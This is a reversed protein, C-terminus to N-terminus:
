EFCKGCSRLDLIGLMELSLPFVSAAVSWRGRLARFRGGVGQLFCGLTQAVVDLGDNVGAQGCGDSGKAVSGEVEEVLGLVRRLAVLRAGPPWKPGLLQQEALSPAVPFNEWVETPADLFPM